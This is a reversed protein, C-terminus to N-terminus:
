SLFVILLVLQVFDLAVYAMMDDYMLQLIVPHPPPPPVFVLSLDTSASGLKALADACSNAERFCHLLM